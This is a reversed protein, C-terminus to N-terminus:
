VLFLPLNMHHRKQKDSYQGNHNKQTEGSRIANSPASMTVSHLRSPSNRRPTLNDLLTTQRLPKTPQSSFDLVPLLFAHDSFSYNCHNKRDQHDGQFRHGFRGPRQGPQVLNFHSRLVEWGEAPMTKRKAALSATMTAM